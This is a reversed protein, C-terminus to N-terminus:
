PARWPVAAAMRRVADPRERENLWAFSFRAFPTSRGDFAYRRGTYWSVGRELGRSVWREWDVDIRFRVWLAMGGPSETFEVDNNFAHRLSSSLIEGRQQYVRRVRAVHRQIEGDELMEAIAAETTLDGQIDLLSRLAGISNFVAQPAVVYGIRLGPSSKRCRASISWREV